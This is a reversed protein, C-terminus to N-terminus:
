RRRLARRIFSGEGSKRLSQSQEKQKYSDIEDLADALLIKVRSLDETLAQKEMDLSNSLDVSTNPTSTNPPTIDIDGQMSDIRQHLKQHQQQSFKFKQQVAEAQKSRNRGSFRRKDQLHHIQNLAVELASEAAMRQVDMEVALNQMRQLREEQLKVKQEFERNRSQLFRVFQIDVDEGEQIEGLDNQFERFDTSQSLCYSSDINEELKVRPIDQNHGSNFSDHFKQSFFHPQKGNNQLDAEEDNEFLLSHANLSSKGSNFFNLNEAFSRQRLNRPTSSLIDNNEHKNQIQQGSSASRNKQMSRNNNNNNNVQHSQESFNISDENNQCATSRSEGSESRRSSFSDTSSYDQNQALNQLKLVFGPNNVNITTKSKEIKDVEDKIKAVLPTEDTKIWNINKTVYSLNHQLKNNDKQIIQNQAQLFQVKEEINQVYDQSQLDQIRKHLKSIKSEMYRIRIEYERLDRKYRVERSMWLSPPQGQLLSELDNVEKELLEKEQQLTCKQQTLAQMQQRTDILEETACRANQLLRCFDGDQGSQKGLQQNLDAALNKLEYSELVRDM